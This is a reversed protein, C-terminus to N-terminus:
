GASEAARPRFRGSQARYTRPRACKSALPAAGTCHALGDGTLPSVPSCTPFNTRRLLILRACNKPWNISKEDLVQAEAEYEEVRAEECERNM